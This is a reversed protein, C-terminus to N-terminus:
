VCKLTTLTIMKIIMNQMEYKWEVNKWLFCSERPRFTTQQINHTIIYCTIKAIADM